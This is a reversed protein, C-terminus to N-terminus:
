KKAEFASYQNYQWNWDVVEFNDWTIGSGALSPGGVTAWKYESHTDRQAMLYGGGFSGSNDANIMGYKQLARLITRVSKRTVTGDDPMQTNINYTSKLRVRVGMPAAGVDTYTGAQHSAPFVFYNASGNTVTRLAHHIEGEACEHLMVLGPM